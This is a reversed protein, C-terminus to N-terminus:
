FSFSANLQVLRGTGAIYHGPYLQDAYLHNGINSVNLRWTLKDNQKFEAMLDATVFAPVKFESRTPKQEGRFNLGTGVRWQSNLAYTAWLTGSYIPTLAPRDGVREGPTNQSCNSDKSCPAAADVKADPILMISGYLELQPSIKGTFDLELGTVHRKGSLTVVSLLPDTNRENLKTTRFAAWRTSFRKDQSDIKAGVEFNLSKEPDLNQNQQSLSYTDGSTNFSSSGSIHYSHSDDPQYLAGLRQSWEGVNMNYSSKKGNAVLGVPNEFSDYDGKLSDYRLGAVLKFNSNIHLTDQLYVGWATSDYQNNIRLLRASENVFAGDNPTGLTTAAKNAVKSGQSADRTAYVVRKDKAFDIGSLIDHKQGLLTTSTTFDSQLLVQDLDQIKNNTGRYLKTKNTLNSILTPKAPGTNGTNPGNSPANWRIASARQDRSFEGKRLQTKLETQPDIRFTHELTAMSAKGHNYDSEMGYYATPDLPIVTKDLDSAQANPLVWPLGYNMGNDNNLHYISASFEHKEGIGTRLNAAVGQKNISSGSGNNEAKNGMANIRVSNNNELPLNLDAQVRAYQHSGLTVDVLNESILHAKKTVQNVAGGTSGRGFLMSASGRLVEMRDLAFTDRDYFAPDRMGDVFVDGTAQLSFGRLRIDEEGGEAALFTIGATNRLADKLTDLNRDDILKETVVTISQPIDRLQQKGKGISTLDAKVSDKGLAQEKKEKVVVPALTSEQAYAISTSLSPALLLVSLPLIQSLGTKKPAFPIGQAFLKSM